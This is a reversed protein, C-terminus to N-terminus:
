QNDRSEGIIRCYGERVNDEVSKVYYVIGMRIDTFRMRENMGARYRIMVECSKNGVQQSSEFSEVANTTKLSGWVKFSNGYSVSPKNSLASITGTFSEFLLRRDLKGVEIGKLM